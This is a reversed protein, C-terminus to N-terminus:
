RPEKSRMSVQLGSVQKPTIVRDIFKKIYWEPTDPLPDRVSSTTEAHRRHSEHKIREEEKQRMQEDSIVLAWKKELSLETDPFGRAERLQEFRIEIEKDDPRETFIPQSGGHRNIFSTLHHNHHHGASESSVYSPAYKSTRSSDSRTMMGSTPRAAVSPSNSSQTNIVNPLPIQGFDPMHPSGKTSSSSGESRRFKNTQPTPQPTTPVSPGSDDYLTSSDATSISTNPSQPRRQGYQEYAYDREAKSRAMRFKNLETGEATLAPNTNPASIGRFPNSGFALPSKPVAGSGVKDYPVSSAVLDQSVSSQRPRNKRRSFLDM